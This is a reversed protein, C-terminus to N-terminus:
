LANPLNSRRITTNEPSPAHEHEDAEAEEEELEDSEAIKPHPPALYHFGSPPHASPIYSGPIGQVSHFGHFYSANMPYSNEEWVPHYSPFERTQVNMGQPVDPVGQLSVDVPLPGPLMVSNMGQQTGFGPHSGFPIQPARSPEAAGGDLARYDERFGVGPYQIGGIRAAEAKRAKRENMAQLLADKHSLEAKLYSSMNGDMPQLTGRFHSGPPLDNTVRHVLNAVGEMLEPINPPPKNVNDGEIIFNSSNGFFGM